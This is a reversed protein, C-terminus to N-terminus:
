ILRLAEIIGIKLAKEPNKYSNSNIYKLFAEKEWIGCTYLIGKKNVDDCRDIMPEISHVDRLWRQIECLVLYDCMDTLLIRKEDFAHHRFTFGTTVTKAKFGKEAALKCIEKM